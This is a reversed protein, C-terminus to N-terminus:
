GRYPSSSKNISSFRSIYLNIWTTPLSTMNKAHKYITQSQLRVNKCPINKYFFLQTEFTLDLPQRYAATSQSYGLLQYSIFANTFNFDIVLNWSKNRSRIHHEIFPIRIGRDPNLDWRTGFVVHCQGQAPYTPLFVHYFRTLFYFLLWWYISLSRVISSDEHLKLPKNKDRHLHWTLRM